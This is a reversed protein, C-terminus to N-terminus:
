RIAVKEMQHSVEEFRKDLFSVRELICFVFYYNKNNSIWRIRILHTASTGEGVKVPYRSGSGRQRQRQWNLEGTEWDWDAALGGSWVLM